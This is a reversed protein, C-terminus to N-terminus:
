KVSSWHVGKQHGRGKVETITLSPYGAKEMARKVDEVKSPRVIAEIKKM